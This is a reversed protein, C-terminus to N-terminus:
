SRKLEDIGLKVCKTTISPQKALELAEVFANHFPQATSVNLRVHVQAIGDQVEVCDAPLTFNMTVGGGLKSEGKIDCCYEPIM